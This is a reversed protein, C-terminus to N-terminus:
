ALTEEKSERVRLRYGKSPICEIYDGVPGLKRRLSCIHSDVTRSIVQASEGWIADVLSQRSYVQGHHQALLALIKFEKATLDRPEDFDSNTVAARMLPIDLVLRGLRLNQQDHRVATIKRLHMEVRAKLELPNVPKTLYDDAGLSFASVKSAIDEKSTLLLVPASRTHLGSQLRHLITLGDGDPLVLDILTLDFRIERKDLLANAAALSSVCTVKTDHKNLTTTVVQQCQESDELLLINFM